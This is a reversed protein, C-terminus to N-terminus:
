LMFSWLRDSIMSLLQDFDEAENYLDDLSSYSIHEQELWSVIPSVSTRLILQRCEKMARITKYNLLEPDGTSISIITITHAM